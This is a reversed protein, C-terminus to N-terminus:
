TDGNRLAQIAAKRTKKKWIAFIYLLLGVFVFFALATTKWPIVWFRAQASLKPNAQGYTAELTATYPGIWFGDGKANIDITDLIAQVKRITGPLVNEEPLTLKAVPSGLINRVTVTGRPKLHVTGANHFRATFVLPATESVGSVSFSEVVMEERTEGPVRLLLTATILTRVLTGENGPTPDTTILLAGWRSGPQASPPIDIVVDIPFTEGPSVSQDTVSPRVWNKLSFSADETRGLAVKGEEGDPWFDESTVHLSLAANTGNRFETKLSMHEGPYATIDFHNPTLTIPPRQASTSYANFPLVAALSLLPIWIATSNSTPMRTYIVLSPTLAPLDSSPFGHRPM